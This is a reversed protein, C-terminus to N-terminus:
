AEPGGTTTISTHHHTTTEPGRRPGPTTGRHGAPTGGTPPSPDTCLTALSHGPSEHTRPNGTCLPGSVPIACVIQPRVQPNTHGTTTRVSTAPCRSRAGIHAQSDTM